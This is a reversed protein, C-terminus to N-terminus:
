EGLVGRIVRTSNWSRCSPCMWHHTTGSFGCQECRYVPQGQMLRQMLDRILQPGVDSLGLEHTNLLEMLYELGRVTCRKELGELLLNAAGEPDSEATLRALLLVPANSDPRSSEPRLWEMLEAMRKSQRHCEVLENACLVLLDPDRECAERFCDAALSFDRNSQAIRGEILRARGIGPLYRRAQRLHQTASELDDRTLAEDALECYLQAILGVDATGDRLHLSQAQEVAKLWDKEQQYIDLLHRRARGAMLESDTLELFLSEARDLLGARMYDMALEFLVRERQEDDLNPRSIIHKHYRIAKDMEGRRRFLTGLAMHTDVTNRNVEALKVFEEIAKDSEENLLYNLGRFYQSSLLSGQKRRRSKQGKAALWGTWAALPLLLFFLGIEIM